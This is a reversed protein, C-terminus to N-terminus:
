ERKVHEGWGNDTQTGQTIFRPRSLDILNTVQFHALKEADDSRKEASELKGCYLIRPAMADHIIIAIIGM